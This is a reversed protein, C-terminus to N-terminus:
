VLIDDAEIPKERSGLHLTITEFSSRSERSTAKTEASMACRTGKMAASSPAIGLLAPQDGLSRFGCRRCLFRVAGLEAIRAVSSICARQPTANPGRRAVLEETAENRHHL